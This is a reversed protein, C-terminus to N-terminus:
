RNPIMRHERQPEGQSKESRTNKARDAREEGLEEGTARASRALAEGVTESTGDAGDKGRENSVKTRRHRQAVSNSDKGRRRIRKHEEGDNQEGFSSTTIKVREISGPVRLDCVLDVEPTAHFTRWARTLRQLSAQCPIGSIMGM